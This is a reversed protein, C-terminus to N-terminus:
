VAHRAEPLDSRNMAGVCGLCKVGRFHRIESNGVFCRMITGEPFTRTQPFPYTIDKRYCGDCIVSGGSQYNTTYFLARRLRMLAQQNSHHISLVKGEPIEADHSEPSRKKKLEERIANKEEAATPELERRMSEYRKIVKMMCKKKKMEAFMMEVVMTELSRIDKYIERSYKTELHDSPLNGEVEAMAAGRMAEYTATKQAWAEREIIDHDVVQNRARWQWPSKPMPM